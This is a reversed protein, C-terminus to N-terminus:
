GEGPTSSCAQEFLEIWGPFDNEFADASLASGDPAFARIQGDQRVLVAAPLKRAHGSLVRRWGHADAEVAVLAAIEVEGVRVVPDLALRM